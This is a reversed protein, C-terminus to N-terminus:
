EDKVDAELGQIIGKINSVVIGPSWNVNFELLKIMQRMADLKAAHAIAKCKGTCDDCGEPIGSCDGIINQMVSYRLENIM